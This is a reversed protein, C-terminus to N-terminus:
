LKIKKGLRLSKLAAEAIEIVKLGDSGTVLPSKKAVSCELFNVLENKLPEERKLNIVKENSEESNSFLNSTDLNIFESKLYKISQNMYDIKILNNTMNVRVERIKAPSLWSTECIAFKKHGYDLLILVHDEREYDKYNGGLTFVSIPYKGFISNSIDIDHVSLDFIIGVDSIRSPYPSFRKSSISLLKESGKSLIENQLFNIVPNHREIHGVALTLGSKDFKSILDKAEEKTSTFPKEVLINKGLQFAANAVEYHFQTPTAISLSDVLPILDKYDKFWKVGFKKAVEKGQKENPDAVGVLNSIEKYVRAHNQGMSGVGIVGTKINRFDNM